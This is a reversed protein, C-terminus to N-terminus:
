RLKKDIYAKVNNYFIEAEEVQKRVDDHSIIYFDVYDSGQRLAFASKIIDSMNREFVGTKIYDMQFCAIVGSHKKFDKGDLALLARVTHFIAYYSRNAANDFMDMSLTAKSDKLFEKAKELRYSCLDVQEKSYLM